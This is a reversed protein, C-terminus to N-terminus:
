NPSVLIMKYGALGLLIVTENFVGPGVVNDVLADIEAM